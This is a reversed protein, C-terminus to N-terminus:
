SRRSSVPILISGVHYGRGGIQLVITKDIDTGTPYEIFVNVM